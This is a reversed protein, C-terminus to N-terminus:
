SSVETLLSVLALGLLYPLLESHGHAGTRPESWAKYLLRAGNQSVIM